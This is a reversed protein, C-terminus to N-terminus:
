DRCKNKKNSSIKYKAVVTQPASRFDRALDHHAHVMFGGGWAGHSLTAKKCSPFCLTLRPIGQCSARELRARLPNAITSRHLLCLLSSQRTLYQKFFSVTPSFLHPNASSSACRGERVKGEERVSFVVSKKDDDSRGGERVSCCRHLDGTGDALGDQSAPQRRGRRRLALTDVDRDDARADPRDALLSLVRGVSEVSWVGM